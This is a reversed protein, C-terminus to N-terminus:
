KSNQAAQWRDSRRRHVRNKLIEQHELDSLDPNQSRIGALTISCAYDFLEAGAFFRDRPTLQQARLVDRRLEEIEQRTKQRPQISM